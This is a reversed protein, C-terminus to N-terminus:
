LASPISRVCVFFLISPVALKLIKKGGVELSNLSVSRKSQSSNSTEGASDWKVCNERESLLAVCSILEHQVMFYFLFIHKCKVSCHVSFLFNM